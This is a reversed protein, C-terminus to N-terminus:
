PSFGLAIRLPLWLSKIEGEHEVIATFPVLPLCDYSDGSQAGPTMNSLSDRQTVAMVIEVRKECCEISQRPQQPLYFLFLPYLAFQLPLDVLCM